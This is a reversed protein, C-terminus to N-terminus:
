QGEDFTTMLIWPPVCSKANSYPDILLTDLVGKGEEKAPCNTVERLDRGWPLRDSEWSTQMKPQVRLINYYNKKESKAGPAESDVRWGERWLAKHCGKSHYESIMVCEWGRGKAKIEENLFDTKGYARRHAVRTDKQPHFLINIFQNWRM